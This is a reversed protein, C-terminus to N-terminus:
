VKRFSRRMDHIDYARTQPRNFSSSCKSKMVFCFGDESIYEIVFENGSYISKVVDGVTISQSEDSM